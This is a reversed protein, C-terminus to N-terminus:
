WSNTYFWHKVGALLFDGCPFEKLDRELCGFAWAMWRLCFLFCFFGESLLEAEEAEKMDFRWWRWLRITSAQGSSCLSSLFGVRLCFSVGEGRSGRDFRRWQWMSRLKSLGSFLVAWKFGLDSGSRTLCIKKTEEAEEGKWGRSGRAWIEVVGCM